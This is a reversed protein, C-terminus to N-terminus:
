HSNSWLSLQASFFQHKQIPTSSFNRSLEKSQLSILGTLRWPYWGQINIPFVSASASAEIRQGGSTFFQSMPFSGSALFSQLCSSFPHCSSIIPHCWQSSPCSQSCVRSSVPPCPLSTHQLGHPWLSVSVVSRSLLLLLNISSHFLTHMAKETKVVWDKGVLLRTFPTSVVTSDQLIALCGSPPLTPPPLNRSLSASPSPQLRRLSPSM